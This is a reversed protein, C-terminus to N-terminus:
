KKINKIVGLFSLLLLIYGGLQILEAIVYVMSHFPIFIFILQSLGIIAFSIALFQSNKKKNKFYNKFYAYTIFFLLFLSTLHFLFYQSISFYTIALIFYIFLIFEHIIFLIGFSVFAPRLIKKRITLYSAGFLGAMLVLNLYIEDAKLVSFSIPEQSIKTYVFHLINDKIVLQVPYGFLSWVPKAIGALLYLYAIAILKWLGVLVASIGLFYLIFKFPKPLNKWM